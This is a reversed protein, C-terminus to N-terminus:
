GSVNGVIGGNEQVISGLYELYREINIILQGGNRDSENRM